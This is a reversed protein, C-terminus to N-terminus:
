AEADVEGRLSRPSTLVRGPTEMLEDSIVALVVDRGDGHVAARRVIRQVVFQAALQARCPLAEM